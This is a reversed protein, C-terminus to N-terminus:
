GRWRTSRSIQTHKIVFVERLKSNYGYTFNFCTIKNYVQTFNYFNIFKWAADVEYNKPKILLMNYFKFRFRQNYYFLQPALPSRAM